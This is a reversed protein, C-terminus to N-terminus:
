PSNLLFFVMSKMIFIDFPPSPGCQPQLCRKYVTHTKLVTLISLSMAWAFTDTVENSHVVFPLCSTQSHFNYIVPSNSM